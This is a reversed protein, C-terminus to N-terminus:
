PDTKEVFDEIIRAIEGPKEQLMLHTTDIERYECDLLKSLERSQKPPITTDRKGSVVVANEKKLEDRVDYNIMSRLGHIVPEKGAEKLEKISRLRQQESGEEAYNDAIMGAWKERTIEGLKDLFFKPSRYRPDPTSACTALLVLGSFNESLTSYKLAAMGGMSHGVIFPEELSETIKEMDEALGQINFPSCDSEGHCRQDYIILPNDLDLEKKVPEWSEGSGLWGHVFVIPTGDGEVEEYVIGEKEPMPFFSSPRTKELKKDPLLQPLTTLSIVKMLWTM